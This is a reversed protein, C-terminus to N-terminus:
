KTLIEKAWMETNRDPVGPRCANQMHAWVIQERFPSSISAVRVYRADENAQLISLAIEALPVLEIKKLDVTMYPLVNSFGPLAVYAGNYGSNLKGEVSEINKKSPAAKLEKGHFLDKSYCHACLVHSVKPVRGNESSMDCSPTLILSYEEPMGVNEFSSEQSKKRIIDCVCLGDSIPPCLYQVWSPSLNGIYEKDFFASTRKSLIYGVSDPELMDEDKILEISNLSSIVAKGMEKRYKALASVFKEMDNLFQIVPDEDGKSIIKVFNSEKLKEDINITLANASFIVVPRFCINWIHDLISKGIDIKDADDRWDLVVIDPDFELMYKYAEDFGCLNKEWNQEECHDLIGKVSSPIDDVILVKM